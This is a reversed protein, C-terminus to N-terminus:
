VDDDFGKHLEAWLDPWLIWILLDILVWAAGCLACILVVDCSSM